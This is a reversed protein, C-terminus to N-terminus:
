KKLLFILTLILTLVWCCLDAFEGVHTVQETSKFYYPPLNLDVTAWLRWQLNLYSAAFEFLERSLENM